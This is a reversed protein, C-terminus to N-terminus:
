ENVQGEQIENLKAFEGHYKLAAVNYAQAALEPTDFMGLYIKVSNLGIQARWRWSGRHAYVGKYKKTSTSNKDRNCLNQQHTCLRLNSRRNDLGNHNIHDVEMGKSAGLIARHMPLIYPRKSTAREAYWAGKGDTRAFWKWKSLWEYDGADVLAYKGQTLPIKKTEPINESM